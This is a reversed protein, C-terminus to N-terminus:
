ARTLKKLALPIMENLSISEIDKEEVQYVAELAEQKKYGLNVLASITEEQISSTSRTLSSFNDPIRGGVNNMKDKLERVIRQALKPGVGEADTFPSYDQALINNQIQSPTLASLIALCVKGGVGQVTLLLRFLSRETDTLFGFLTFSDQRILPEVFLTCVVGESPLNKLTNQSCLLAYGVGQVDLVVSSDFRSDLKGTLKAIMM